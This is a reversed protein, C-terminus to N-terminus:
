LWRNANVPHCFCSECAADNAAESCWALAAPDDRPLPHSVWTWKGRCGDHAVPTAGPSRVRGARRSLPSPLRRITAPPRMTFYKSDPPSRPLPVCVADGRMSPWPLRAASLAQSRIPLSVRPHVRLRSFSVRQRSCSHTPFVGKRSPAVQGKGPISVRQWGHQGHSEGRPSRAHIM